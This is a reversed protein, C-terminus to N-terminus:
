KELLGPCPIGNAILVVEGGGGGGGDMREGREKRWREKRERKGHKYDM